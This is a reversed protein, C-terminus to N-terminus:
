FNYEVGKKSFITKQKVISQQRYQKFLNVLKMTISRSRGGSAKIGGVFKKHEVDLQEILILMETYLEELTKVDNM